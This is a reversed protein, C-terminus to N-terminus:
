RGLVEYLEILSKRTAPDGLDQNELRIIAFCFPGYNSFLREQAVMEESVYSGDPPLLKM